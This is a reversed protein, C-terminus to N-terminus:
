LLWAPCIPCDRYDNDLFTRVGCPLNAALLRGAVVKAKALTFASSCPWLSSDTAHAHQVREPVTFGHPTGQTAPYLAAPHFATVEIRLLVLYAHM